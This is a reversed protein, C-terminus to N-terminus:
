VRLSHLRKVLSIATAYHKMKAVLGILFTFEKVGPFPDMAAMKNFFSVAADVSKLDRMSNLLERRRKPASSSCNRPNSFAGLHQLLPFLDVSATRRRLM